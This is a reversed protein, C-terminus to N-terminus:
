RVAFCYSIYAQYICLPICTDIDLNMFIFRCIDDSDNVACSECTILMPVAFHM